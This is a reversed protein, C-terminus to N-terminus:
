SYPSFYIGGVDTKCKQVIGTTHYKPKVAGPNGRMSVLLRKLSLPITNTVVGERCIYLINFATSSAVKFGVNSM